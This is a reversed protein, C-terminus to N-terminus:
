RESPLKEAYNVFQVDLRNLALDGGDNNEVTLCAAEVDSGTSVEAVSEAQASPGAHLTIKGALTDYRLTLENTELASFRTPESERNSAHDCLRWRHGDKARAVVSCIPRGDHDWLTISETGGTRKVKDFLIRPPATAFSMLVVVRRKHNLDEEIKFNTTLNRFGGSTDLEGAGATTPNKEGLVRWPEGIDPKKGSIRTGKPESFDDSFVMVETPMSQHFDRLDAEVVETLQDNMWVAGEGAVLEMPPHGDARDIEVSGSAVHVECSGRDIARIGFETGIHRVTAGAVRVKFDPAGPAVRFFVKGEKLLVDGDKNLELRAPGSVFAETQPNLRALTVGNRVELQQGQKWVKEEPAMGDILFRCDASRSLVVPPLPTSIMRLVGIGLLLIAAAAGLSWMMGRGRLRRATWSDGAPEVHSALLDPHKYNDVLLQDTTTLHLYDRRAEADDLLVAQLRDFDEKSISGDVMDHILEQIEERPIM